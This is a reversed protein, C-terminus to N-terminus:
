KRPKRHARPHAQDYSAALHQFDLRTYIQTTSINAHGLLEQVARLDQASQLLHSAFSHRLSHPHVRLPLGVRRALRDLQLQVVRPSIRAGRAGLFLAARTGPDPQPPLLEARVALWARVAEVARGGLPVIRTKGGKGRVVAEGEDLQIWSHSVYGGERLPVHDLGVLEALRLGSSYLVEFMALDRREIISEVPPLGSRDLLAQAHDVSLAKPLTRPIRPARVGHAPNRELGATPARWEFYGRWAALARALSRPKLGQAHLRGLAQRIHSETFADLALGPHCRRLAALDRRYGAITHAAYRRQEGLLALWAEVLTDDGAAMRGGGM